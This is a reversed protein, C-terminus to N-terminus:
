NQLYSSIMNLYKDKREQTFIRVDTQVGGLLIQVSKIDGLSALKEINDFESLINLSEVPTISPTVLRNDLLFMEILMVGFNKDNFLKEEPSIPAIQTDPSIEVTYGPGLNLLTWDQAEQLSNFNQYTAWSDKSIKYTIM